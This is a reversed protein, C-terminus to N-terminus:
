MRITSWFMPTTLILKRWSKCVTSLKMVQVLSNGGDGEDLCALGLIIGLMEPPLRRIPVLLAEYGGVFKNLLRLDNQIGLILTKLQDRESKCEGIHANTSCILVRIASRDVNTLVKERYQELM